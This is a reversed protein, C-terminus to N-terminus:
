SHNLCSLGISNGRACDVGCGFGVAILFDVSGAADNPLLGKGTFAEVLGSALFIASISGAFTALTALTIASKYSLTGSGYLTAVGKFNDNAGNSWALFLVSLLLVLFVM